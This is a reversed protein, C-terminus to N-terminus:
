IWYSKEPLADGANYIGGMDFADLMEAVFNLQESSVKQKWKEVLWQKGAPDREDRLVERTSATSLNTSRSPVSLQSMIRDPRALELRSALRDVAPEPDIILQEYTLVVWDDTMSQLAISNRLCWDLVGRSFHDDTAIIRRAIKLQPVTFKRGFDTDLITNLKPSVKRSVSVAVPHRILFVVRGNCTESLWNIHEEAGHIIKFVVRRTIPRYFPSLPSPRNFRPDRITGSCLKNIYPGLKEKFDSQHLATWDSVGLHERVADKRVNLPENYYTFGPQTLILEMLWTSGSRPMSHVFVNPEGSPSHRTM